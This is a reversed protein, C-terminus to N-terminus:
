RHTLNIFFKENFAVFFLVHREATPLKVFIGKAVLDQLTKNLQAIKQKSVFRALSKSL